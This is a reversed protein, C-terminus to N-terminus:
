QPELVSKEPGSSVASSPMKMLYEITFLSPKSPTFHGDPTMVREEEQRSGSSDECNTKQNKEGVACTEDVSSIEGSSEKADGGACNAL